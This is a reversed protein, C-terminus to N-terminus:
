QKTKRSFHGRVLHIGGTQHLTYYYMGHAYFIGSDLM